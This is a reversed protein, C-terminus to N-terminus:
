AQLLSSVAGGCEATPDKMIEQVCDKVDQIFQDAVGTQTHLLTVCLHVSPSILDNMWFTISITVAINPMSTSHLFCCIILGEFHKDGYFFGYIKKLLYCIGECSMNGM